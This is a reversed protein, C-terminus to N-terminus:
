SDRNLKIETHQFFLRGAVDIMEEIVIVRDKFVQAVRGGHIGIRSGTSIVHGRGSAEKVLAKNGSAALIIGTLKLQSLDIKELAQTPKTVTNAYTATESHLKPTEKFLPKFPDIKNTPDYLPKTRGAYATDVDIDTEDETDNDSISLDSKPEPITTQQNKKGPLTIKKWVVVPKSSTRAESIPSLILSLVIVVGGLRSIKFIHQNM